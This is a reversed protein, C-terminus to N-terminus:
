GHEETLALEPLRCRVASRHRRLSRHRDASSTGVAGDSDELVDLSVEVRLFQLAQEENTGYEIM